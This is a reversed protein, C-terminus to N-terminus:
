VGEDKCRDLSLFCVSLSLAHCFCVQRTNGEELSCPQSLLGRDGSFVCDAVVLMIKGEDMSRQFTFKFAFTYTDNTEHICRCGKANWNPDCPSLNLSCVQTVSGKPFSVRLMVQSASQQDCHSMNEKHLTAEFISEVGDLVPKCNNWM